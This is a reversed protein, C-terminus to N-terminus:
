EASAVFDEVYASTIFNTSDNEFAKLYKGFIQRFNGPNTDTQPITFIYEVTVDVFGTGDLGTFTYVPELKNGSNHMNEASVNTGNVTVSVAKQNTGDNIPAFLQNNEEVLNEYSLAFRITLSGDWARGANQQMADKCAGLNLTYTVSIKGSEAYNGTVPDTFHLSSYTFSETSKKEICATMDKVDHAEMESSILNTPNLGEFAVEYWTAFGISFMFVCSIVTTAVAMLRIKRLNVHKKTMAHEASHSHAKKQKM